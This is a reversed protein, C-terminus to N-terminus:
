PIFRWFLGLYQHEYYNRWMVTELHATASPNFERLTAHRPVFCYSAVFGFVLIFAGAIKRFHRHSPHRVLSFM